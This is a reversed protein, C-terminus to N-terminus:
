QVVEGMNNARIKKSEVAADVLENRGLHSETEWKKGHKEPGQLRLNIRRYDFMAM